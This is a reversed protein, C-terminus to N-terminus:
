CEKVTNLSDSNFLVKCSAYSRPSIIKMAYGLICSDLVTGIFHRNSKTTIDYTKGILLTDTM